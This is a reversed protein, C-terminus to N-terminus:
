REESNGCVTKAINELQARLWALGPDSSKFDHWVLDIKTPTLEFPLKMLHLNFVDQFKNLLLAPGTVVAGSESAAHLAALFHPMNAIVRPRKETGAFLSKSVEDRTRAPAVVLQDLTLYTDMTLKQGVIPHDSAVACLYNDQLLRKSRFRKPTKTSWVTAIDIKGKEIEDLPLSAALHHINLEIGPAQDQIHSLLRPLLLSEVYDTTAIDFKRKSRSPDFSPQPSVAKEIQKLADHLEAHIQLARPSAKMGGASKILIPDDLQRRLRGLAHSVAPQSMALRDASRTVNQEEILVDFVTLLNLDIRRLSM